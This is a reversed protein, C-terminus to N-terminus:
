PIMPRQPIALVGNWPSVFAMHAWILPTPPSFLNLSSLPASSHRSKSYTSLSLHEAEDLNFSFFQVLEYCLVATEEMGEEAKKDRSAFPTRSARPSARRTEALMANSWKPIREEHAVARHRWKEDVLAMGALSGTEGQM